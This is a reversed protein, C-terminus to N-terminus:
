WLSQCDESFESLTEKLSDRGYTFFHSVEKISAGLSSSESNCSQFHDGLNLDNFLRIATKTPAMSSCSAAHYMAESNNLMLESRQFTPLSLEKKEQQKELLPSIYEEGEKYHAVHCLLLSSYNKGRELWHQLIRLAADRQSPLSETECFDQIDENLYTLALSASPKNQLKKIMSQDLSSNHSALLLIFASLLSETLQPSRPNSPSYDLVKYQLMAQLSYRMHLPYDALFSALILLVEHQAANSKTMSNTTARSWMHSFHVILQAFFDPSDFIIERGYHSVIQLGNDLPISLLYEIASKSDQLDFFIIQFCCMFMTYQQALQRALSFCRGERLTQVVFEPTVKGCVEPSVLLKSRDYLGQKMYCHLLLKVHCLLESSSFHNGFTPSILRELFRTLDPLHNTKLYRMIVYSPELFGVTDLYQDMGKRFHGRSYLYDGYLKSVVTSLRHGKEAPMQSLESALEKAADFMEKEFYLGLKVIGPQEKFYHAYLHPSDKLVNQEKAPLSNTIIVIGEDTILACKWKKFRPQFSGLSSIYHVCDLCHLFVTDPVEPNQTVVWVYDKFCEIQRPICSSPLDVTVVRISSPSTPDFPTGLRNGIIAIQFSSKVKHLVALGGYDGFADACGNSAGFPVPCAMETYEGIDYPWWISVSDEYVTYFPIHLFDRRTQFNSISSLEGLPAVKRTIEESIFLGKKPSKSLDCLSVFILRGKNGRNKIQFPRDFIHELTGTFLTVSNTLRLAIASLDTTVIVSCITNCKEGEQEEPLFEGWWLKCEQIIRKRESFGRPLSNEKLSDFIGTDISCVKLYPNEDSREMGICTIVQKGKSFSIHTISRTFLSPFTVDQDRVRLNILQLSGDNYGVCLINDALCYCNPISDGCKLITNGVDQFIRVNEWKM